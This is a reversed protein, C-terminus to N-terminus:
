MFIVEIENESDDGIKFLSLSPTGHLATGEIHFLKGVSRTCARVSRWNKVANNHTKHAKIWLRYSIWLLSIFIFLEETEISNLTCKLLTTKLKWRTSNNSHNSLFNQLNNKKSQLHNESMTIVCNVDWLRSFMKNNKSKHISSIESPRRDDNGRSKNKNKRLIVFVFGSWRSRLTRKYRM